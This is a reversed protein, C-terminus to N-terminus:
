QQGNGPTEPTGAPNDSKGPRMDPGTGNRTAPTGMTGGTGSHDGSSMGMNSSGMNSSGAGNGNMGNDGNTQAFVPCALGVSLAAAVALSRCVNM